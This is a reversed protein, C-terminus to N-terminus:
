TMEAPQMFYPHTSILVKNTIPTNAAMIAQDPLQGGHTPPSERTLNVATFAEHGGVPETPTLNKMTMLNQTPTPKTM